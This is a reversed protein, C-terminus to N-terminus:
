NEVVTVQGGRVQLSEELLMPKQDPEVVWLKYTGVPVVLDKNYGTIEQVDYAYLTGPSADDTTVVIRTNLPRNETTVRILGLYDEPQLQKVEREANELEAVMKVPMGETPVWWVDVKDASPQRLEEGYQTVKNIDYAYLTGDSAGLECLVIEKMSPMAIAPKLVVIARRGKPAEPNFPAPEIGKGIRTTVESIATSLEESNKADYYRGKGAAAIEATAASEQPKLGFGVVNIGFRFMPNEALRSAEASPDGNCSELGDTILVVGCYTKRNAFQQGVQKLALAIPTNGVAPLGQIAAILDTKEADKLEKLNRLVKVASCGPAHGYVVVATNLGEPLQRILGSVVEKAVEVKPRGDPTPEQMSASVDLVIALDSIPEATDADKDRSKMATLLADTAGAALLQKEQESSLVFTAGSKRLRVVILDSDVGNELLSLVSEFTVLQKGPIAPQNAATKLAEIVADTIGASKLREIAADDVAFDIGDKEIKAIIDGDEFGADVMGTVGKEKLPGAASAFDGALVLSTLVIM